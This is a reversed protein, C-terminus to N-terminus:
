LLAKFGHHLVVLLHGEPEHPPGARANIPDVIVYNPHVRIVRCDVSRDPALIRTYPNARDFLVARGDSLRGIVNGKVGRITQVKIRDGLNVVDKFGLHFCM